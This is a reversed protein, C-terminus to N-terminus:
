SDVVDWACMESSESSSVIYNQEMVVSAKSLCMIFVTHGVHLCRPTMKLTAPDVQWLCIQGNYCGTVLTKLDRSLYICSICWTPASQPSFSRKSNYILRGNVLSSKENITTTTTSTRTCLIDPPPTLISWQQKLDAPLRQPTSRPSCSAHQVLTITDSGISSEQLANYSKDSQKSHLHYVGTNTEFDMTTYVEDFMIVVHRDKFSLQSARKALAKLVISNFRVDVLINASLRELTSISPICFPMESNLNKYAKTSRKRQGLCFVKIEIPYRRGNKTTKQNRM